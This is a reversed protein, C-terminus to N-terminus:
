VGLRDREISELNAIHRDRDKLHKEVDKYKRQWYLTTNHQSEWAKVLCDYTELIAKRHQKGVRSAALVMELESRSMACSPLWSM